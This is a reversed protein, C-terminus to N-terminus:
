RPHVGGDSHNFQSAVKVTSSGHVRPQETTPGHNWPSRRLDIKRAVFGPAISAGLVDAGSPIPLGAFKSVIAGRSRIARVLSSLFETHLVSYITCIMTSGPKTVENHDGKVLRRHVAGVWCSYRHERCLGYQSQQTRLGIECMTNPRRFSGHPLRLKDGVFAHSSSM